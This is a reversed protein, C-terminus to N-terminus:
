GGGVFRVLELRDGEALRQEAYHAPALIVGNHEVVVTAPALELLTLLVAVTSGEDLEYDKGNCVIRM